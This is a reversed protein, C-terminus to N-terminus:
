QLAVKSEEMCPLSCICAYSEACVLQPKRQMGNGVDRFRHTVAGRNVLSNLVQELLGEPGMGEIEWVSAQAGSGM